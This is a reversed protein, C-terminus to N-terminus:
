FGPMEMEEEAAPGDLRYAELKDDGWMYDDIMDEDFEQEPVEFKGFPASIQVPSGDQGDSYMFGGCRNPIIGDLTVLEHGEFKQGPQIVVNEAVRVHDPLIAGAGIVAGKGIEAHSGIVAGDAIFAGEGIKAWGGLEVDNGIHAQASIQTWFGMTIDKGLYAKSSVQAYGKVAKRRRWLQM